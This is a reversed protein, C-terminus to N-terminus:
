AQFKATEDHAPLKTVDWRPVREFVYGYADRIDVTLIRWKIVTVLEGHWIARHCEAVVHSGM